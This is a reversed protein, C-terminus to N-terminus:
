TPPGSKSCGGMHLERIGFTSESDGSLGAVEFVDDKLERNPILEAERIQLYSTM